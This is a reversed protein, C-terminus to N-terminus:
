AFLTRYGNAEANMLAAEPSEGTVLRAASVLATVVCRFDHAAVCRNFREEEAADKFGEWRRVTIEPMDPNKRMIGEAVALRNCLIVDALNASAPYLAASRYEEPLGFKPFMDGSHGHMRWAAGAVIWDTVSQLAFDKAGFFRAFKSTALVPDKATAPIRPVQAMGIGEARPGTMSFCVTEVDFRGFTAMLSWLLWRFFGKDPIHFAKLPQNSGTRFKWEATVTGAVTMDMTDVGGVNVAMHPAGHGFVWRRGLHESRQLPTQKDSM